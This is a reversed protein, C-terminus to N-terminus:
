SPLTGIIGNVMALVSEAGLQDIAESFTEGYTNFAELGDSYGRIYEEDDHMREKGSLADDYGAYYIKEPDEREPEEDYNTVTPGQKWAPDRVAEMLEEKILQKLKSKTLKM